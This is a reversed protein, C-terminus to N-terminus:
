YNYLNKIIKLNILYHLDPPERLSLDGFKGPTVHYIAELDYHRCGRIQVMPGNDMNKM